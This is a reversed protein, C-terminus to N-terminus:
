APLHRGIAELGRDYLRPALHRGLATLLWAGPGPLYRLQPHRDTAAKYVLWAVDEPTDTALLDSGIADLWPRLRGYPSGPPTSAEGTAGAIQGWETKTGAPEIICVDIGFQKVETRLVDSYVEVAHKTAYYWGGMPTRIRGGISSINLIRGSGQARLTPLVLQTMNALGFVNVDFQRKALDVPVEELTGFEAYGANNVLVDIRGRERLVREVLAANDEPRTVDLRETTIGLPELDAMREVRRAGGYVTFGVHNLLLATARGIGSSV